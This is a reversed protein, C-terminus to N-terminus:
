RLTPYGVVGMTVIIALVPNVENRDMRNRKWENGCAHRHKNLYEEFSALEQEAFRVTETYILDKM